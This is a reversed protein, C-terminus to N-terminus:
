DLQVAKLAVRPDYHHCRGVTGVDEVRGKQPRASEVTLDDNVGRVDLASLCDETNM